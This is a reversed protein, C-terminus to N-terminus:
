ELPEHRYPGGFGALPDGSSAVSLQRVIGLDPGALVAAGFLVLFSFGVGTYM